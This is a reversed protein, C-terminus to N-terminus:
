RVRLCVIGGGLRRSLRLGPARSGLDGRRSRVHDASVGANFTDTLVGIRPGEAGLRAFFVDAHAGVVAVQLAAAIVPRLELVPEFSLTLQFARFSSSRREVNSTQRR